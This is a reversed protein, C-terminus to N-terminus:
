GSAYEQHTLRTAASTAVVRRPRARRRSDTLSAASEPSPRQEVQYQFYRRVGVSLRLLSKLEKVVVPDTAEYLQGRAYREIESSAHLYRAIVERTQNPVIPRRRPDSM